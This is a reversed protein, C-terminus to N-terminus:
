FRKDIKYRIYNKVVQHVYNVNHKTYHGANYASIVKVTDHYKDYLHALLKAAYYTNVEPKMLDKYKGKFGLARATGLQIQYMGLSHVVKGAAKQALNGDNKNLATAKCKSEQACIAYLLAVDVHFTTAASYMYFPITDTHASGISANVTVISMM